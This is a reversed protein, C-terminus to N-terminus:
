EYSKELINTVEVPFNGLRNCNFGSEVIKLFEKKYSKHVDCVLADHILFVPKCLTLNFKNCLESFYLLAIDVATSQIYNNVIKNTKTEKINWIPRGYFNIRCGVDYEISAKELISEIDFYEKTANLVIDSREKGLGEIQSNSGYLISIIARKIILRDVEFELSKRIDNYIDNGAEKGNIKRIVRPELSKFDIQLVEGEKTWRSEFIKRHRAPLTLIKPSNNKNVLRGTITKVQDYKVKKCYGKTPKFSNLNTILTENKELERFVKYSIKNIKANELCEFIKQKNNFIDIYNFNKDVEELINKTKLYDEEYQKLIYDPLIDLIKEELSNFMIFYKKYKDLTYIKYLKCLDDM